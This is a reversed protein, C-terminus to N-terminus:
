AAVEQSDNNVMQWFEQYSDYRRKMQKWEREMDGLVLRSLFDDRVVKETPEYVYGAEGRVAQYARVSMEAETETAERYVIRCTQILEHARHRYWSEAADKVERDFVHAHLPHKDSRAEQVVLEPTLTSHKDYIAQLHDKITKM